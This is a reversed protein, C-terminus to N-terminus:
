CWMVPTQSQTKKKELERSLNGSIFHNGNRTNIQFPFCFLFFNLFMLQMNRLMVALLSDRFCVPLCESTSTFCSALSCSFGCLFHQFVGFLLFWKNSKESEWEEIHVALLSLYIGESVRKRIHLLFSDTGLCLSPQGQRQNILNHTWLPYGTYELVVWSQLLPYLFLESFYSELFLSVWLDKGQRCLLYWLWVSFQFSNGLNNEEGDLAVSIM